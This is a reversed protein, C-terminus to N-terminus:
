EGGRDFDRHCPKCMPDYHEVHPCYPSVSSGGGNRGPGSRQSPCDLDWRYAWDIAGGGCSTCAHERAAGRAGRVRMHMAPYSIDDGKFRGGGTAEVERRLCGCSRTKGGVLNSAYVEITGGCDCRCALRRRSGRPEAEAVVVLREYRRGRYDQRQRM